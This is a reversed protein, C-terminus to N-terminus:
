SCTWVWRAPHSSDDADRYTGILTAADTVDAHYAPDPLKDAVVGTRGTKRWLSPATTGFTGFVTGSGNRGYPNVGGEYTAVRAGGLDWEVLQTGTATFEFHLARDNDFVMPTRAGPLKTKAGTDGDIIWGSMDPGQPDVMVIKRQANVGIAQGAGFSKRPGTRPWMVVTRQAPTAEQWVLGLVDGGDNIAVGESHEGPEAPLFEYANNEYRFARHLDPGGRYIEQHGTVVGTNNVGSPHVSDQISAPPAMLRLASNTWVAGRSGNQWYAGVIRSNNTSSGKTHPYTGGAPVPLDQRTYQCAAAVAQPTVVASALVLAGLVGATLSRSM